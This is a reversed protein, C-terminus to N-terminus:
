HKQYGDQSQPDAPQRQGGEVTVGRGLLDQGAGDLGQVGGLVAVGHQQDLGVRGVPAAPGGEFDPALLRGLPIGIGM